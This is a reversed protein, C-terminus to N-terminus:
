INGAYVYNLHRQALRVYAFIEQRRPPPTGLMKYAPHFRTIHLPIDRSIAALWAAIGDIQEEDDNFGPVILTTVEVHCHTALLAISEQVCELGRPAGLRDYASQQFAKLDINVADLWPLLQRLPEANIYGNSVVVNVLGAAHVLRASQELYESAIFPENYTYAVGINGRARLRLAEAVLDQPPLLRLAAIADPSLRSQSIDANQCFPCRLNCGFGGVSLIMSGPQFRALPKKEIPDLALATIRGFGAAQVQGDRALRAGCVGFQGDKLHCAHPCLSCTAESM